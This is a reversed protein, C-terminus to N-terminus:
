ECDTGCMLRGRFPVDAGSHKGERFAFAQAAARGPESDVNPRVVDSYKSHSVYHLAEREVSDTTMSAKSSM